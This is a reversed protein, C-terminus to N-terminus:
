EQEFIQLWFRSNEGVAEATHPIGLKLLTQQHETDFVEEYVTKGQGDYARFRFAGNLVHLRAYANLHVPETKQALDAATWDSLERICAYGAMEEPTIFCDQKEM